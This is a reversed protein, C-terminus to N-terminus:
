YGKKCIGRLEHHLKIHDSINMLILNDLRNDKKDGNIHHIVCKDPIFPLNGSQTCWILNHERVDKNNLKIKRYGEDIWGKGKNKNTPIHGKKFSTPNDKHKQYKLGTPRSRFKYFCEKSCYKKRGNRCIPFEIIKGCPCIRKM